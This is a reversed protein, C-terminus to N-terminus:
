QAAQTSLLGVEDILQRQSYYNLYAIDSAAVTTNQSTNGKLYAAAEMYSAQNLPIEAGGVLTLSEYM